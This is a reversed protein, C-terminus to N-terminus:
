SVIIQANVSGIAPITFSNSDTSKKARGYEEIRREVASKSPTGMQIRARKVREMYEYLSLMEDEYAMYDIRDGGSSGLSFDILLAGLFKNLESSGLRAKSGEGLFAAQLTTYHDEKAVVLRLLTGLDSDFAKTGERAGSSQAKNSFNVKLDHKGDIEVTAEVDTKSAKMQYLGGFPLEIESGRSEGSEDGMQRVGKLLENAGEALVYAMGAEFVGGRYNTLHGGIRRHFNSLSIGKGDKGVFADKKTKYSRREYDKHPINVTSIKNGHKDLRHMVEELARVREEFNVAASITTLDIRGAMPIGRPIGTIESLQSKSEMRELARNGLREDIDAVSDMMKQYIYVYEEITDRYEKLEKETALGKEITEEISKLRDFDYVNSTQESKNASSSTPREERYTRLMETLSGGAGNEDNYILQMFGLKDMLEESDMGFKRIFRAKEKAAHRKIIPRGDDKYESARIEMYDSRTAGSGGSFSRFSYNSWTSVKEIDMAGADRIIKYNLRAREMSVNPNTIPIKINNKGM